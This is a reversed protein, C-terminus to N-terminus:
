APRVETDLYPTAPNILGPRLEFPEIDAWRGPTWIVRVEDISISLIRTAYADGAPARAITGVGTIQITRGSRYDICLLGIRSDILLNGLTQFMGNGLYDPLSISTEDLVTVFGPPGGRHTPDTGHEAHHSALFVTDSDQLQTRDEADLHSREEHPPIDSPESGAAGELELSRKFIYKSCLGFSRDMRYLISGDHAVEARGLSKMRRRRAPDFYLVGLEGTDTINRFLPDGEIARPAARVSTPAQVSFLEGPRGILPSAWPRGRHDVSAAVSFNRADVFRAESESLAPRFPQEVLQDFAATDVGSELQLRAEGEHFHRYMMTM